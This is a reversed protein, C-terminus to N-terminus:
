NITWRLSIYEKYDYYGLIKEPLKEIFKILFLFINKNKKNIKLKPAHLISKLVNEIM